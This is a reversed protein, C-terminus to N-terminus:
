LVAPAPHGAAADQIAARPWDVALRRGQAAVPLRTGPELLHRAYEPVFAKRIELAAGGDVPALRLDWEDTRGGQKTLRREATVLEATVPTGRRLRRRDLRADDIGPELPRRLARQAPAVDADGIAIGQARLTAAWDLVLRGRHERLQVEAGLRCREPHPWPSQRVAGRVERGGDQAVYGVYFRGEREGEGPSQAKIADIRGTLPRGDRLAKRVRRRARWGWPMLLDFLHGAFELAFGM